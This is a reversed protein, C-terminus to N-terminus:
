ARRVLLMGCGFAKAPGIGNKWIDILKEVDHIEFAGEFLVPVVKGARNGKRFYLPAQNRINVTDISVADGLKRQLWGYQDEEKILPVRCKGRNKKNVKDQADSICKTPNALIQFGLRQGVNFVAPLTKMALVRAQKSDNVPAISSQMLVQAGAALNLLEMHYLFPSVSEREVDPFLTWLVRHWEYANNLKGPQLFVRSLYM